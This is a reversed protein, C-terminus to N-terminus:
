HNMRKTYHRFEWKQTGSDKSCENTILRAKYIRGMAVDLCYGSERHKIQGPKSHIWEQTGAMGHCAELTAQQGIRYDSLDLCLDEFRIEFDKTLLLAQKKSDDSCTDVSLRKGEGSPVFCLDHNQNHVRGWARRANNSTALLSPTVHNLYWDFSHCNLRTKMSEIESIDGFYRDRADPVASYFEEKYEDMWTEAIRVLNRQYSTELSGPSSYPPARRTVHGVRSCPVIYISGGCMWTKFSFDLADAGWADLGADLGGVKEFFTKSVAFIGGNTLPSRVPELPNLRDAKEMKSLIIRRTELSWRFSVRSLSGDQFGFTEPDITDIIPSVVTTPGQHILDLMPELWHTNVECHSDLFVLVEGRAERAGRIKARAVGERQTTRVLKVKGRVLKPINQLKKELEDDTSADDVLVVEALIDHPTRNVVSHVTRMLTSWAENHFVIIVSATPFKSFRYTIDQCRSDRTDKVTRELSIKDSVVLNFNHINKTKKAKEVDAVGSLMLPQGGEGPGFRPIDKDLQGLVSDLDRHDLNRQGISHANHPHVVPAGAAAIDAVMAQRVNNFIHKNEHHIFFLLFALSLWATGSIVVTLYVRPM